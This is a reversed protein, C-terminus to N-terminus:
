SKKIHNIIKPILIIYCISMFISILIRQLLSGFVYAVSYYGMIKSDLYMALTNLLTLIISSILINFIYKEKNIKSLFGLLIGVLTHPMIWIITTASLGFTLLQSIFMGIAGVLAGIVPGFLIASIFFPLNQLTIKINFFLISFTGFIIFLSLLIAVLSITKNNIKKM